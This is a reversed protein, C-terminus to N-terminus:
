STGIDIRIELIVLVYDQLGMQAVKKQLLKDEVSLEEVSSLGRSDVMKLTDFYRIKNCLEYQVLTYL